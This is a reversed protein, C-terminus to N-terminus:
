KPLKLFAERGYNTEYDIVQAATMQSRKLGEGSSRTPLKGSGSAGSAQFAPAYAPNQKLQAVFDKVTLPDGTDNRAVTGDENIVTVQFAGDVEQLKTRGLVHPLLLVESAGAESLAGLVSNRRVLDDVKGSLFSERDQLDKVQKEYHRRVKKAEADVRAEFTEDKGNADSVKQLDALEEERTKLMEVLSKSKELLEGKEKKLNSLTAKLGSVDELAWGDTPEVALQFKGDDRKTYHDEMGEPVTELIPKLAM